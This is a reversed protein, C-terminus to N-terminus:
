QYDLSYRDVWTNDYLEDGDAWQIKWVTGDQMIRKIKWIPLEESANLNQVYGIYNVTASVEDVRVPYDGLRLNYERAPQNIDDEFM